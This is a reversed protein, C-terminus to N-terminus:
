EQENGNSAAATSLKLHLDEFLRWNELAYQASFMGLKDWFYSFTKGSAAEEVIIFSGHEIKECYAYLRAVSVPKM